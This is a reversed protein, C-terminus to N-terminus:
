ETLKKAYSVGKSALEAGGGETAWEATSKVTKKAWSSIGSFLGKSKKEGSSPADGGGEDEDISRTYGRDNINSTKRISSGSSSTIGRDSNDESLHYLCVDLCLLLLLLDM